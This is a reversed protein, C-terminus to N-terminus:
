RRKGSQQPEPEPEPPPQEGEGGGGEPPTIADIVTKWDGSAPALMYGYGPVYYAVLVDGPLPIPAM